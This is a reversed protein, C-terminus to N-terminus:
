KRNTYLKTQQMDIPAGTHQLMAAPNKGALSCSAKSSFFLCVFSNMALLCNLIASPAMIWMYLALRMFCPMRKLAAVYYTNPGVVIIFYVKLAYCLQTNHVQELDAAQMGSPM